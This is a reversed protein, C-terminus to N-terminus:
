RCVGKDGPLKAFVDIRLVSNSLTSRCQMFDLVALLAVCGDYPFLLAQRDIAPGIFSDLATHCCRVLVGLTLSTGGGRGLPM